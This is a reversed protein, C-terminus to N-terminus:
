RSIVLFDQEQKEEAFSSEAAMKFYMIMNLLFPVFLFSLPSQATIFSRLVIVLQMVIESRRFSNMLRTAILLAHKIRDM